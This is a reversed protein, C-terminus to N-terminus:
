CFPMVMGPLIRYVIWMVGDLVYSWALGLVIAAIMLRPQTRLRYFINIVVSWVLLRPIAAGLFLAGDSIDKEFGFAGELVIMYAVGGVLGLATKAAAFKFPSVKQKSAANLGHAFLTYGSLKVALYAAGALPSPMMPM